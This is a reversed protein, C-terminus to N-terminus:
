VEVLQNVLVDNNGTVSSELIEADGNEVLDDIADFTNVESQITLQESFLIDWLTDVQLVGRPIQVRTVARPLNRLTFNSQRLNWRHLLDRGNEWDKYNGEAIQNIARRLGAVYRWLQKGEETKWFLYQSITDWVQSFRQFFVSKNAKNFDQRPVITFTGLRRALRSIRNPGEALEEFVIAKALGLVGLAISPSLFFCPPTRYEFGHPPTRVADAPQDSYLRGYRSGDARRLAAEEANELLVLVQSLAFDLALAYREEFPIGFHIHGGIPRRYKYSGGFWVTNEPLRHKNRAIIDKISEVIQQPNGPPVRLELLYPHGDAGFEADPDSELSPVYRTVNIIYGDREAVVFEPDTGMLFDIGKAQEPLM